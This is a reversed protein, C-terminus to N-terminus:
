INMYKGDTLVKLEMMDGAKKPNLIELILGLKWLASRFM